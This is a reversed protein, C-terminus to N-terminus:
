YCKIRYMVGLELRATDFPKLGSQASYGVKHLTGAVFIRFDQSPDPYYELSCVGMLSRRYNRFAGCDATDFSGKAVLNWGPLFQWFIKGILSTYLANGIRTGSPLAFDASAIGLRDIGDKEFMYDLYCQFRSSNFKFGGNFLAAYIDASQSMGGVAWRGLLKGDFFSSNWNLLINLPHRAGSVSRTDTLSSGTIITPSSYTNAFSHILPNTVEFVFEQEPVPRWCFAVGGFFIDMHNLLDSYQYVYMPNEDYDFGGWHQCIKGGEVSFKDSLAFGIMFLDTAASFNDLSAAASTGNIKHRFRYYIRDTLNGKIELRMERARFASNWGSFGMEDGNSSAYSGAFNMYVNFAESKKELELLRQALSEFQIQEVGMGTNGGQAFASLPLLLALFISLKKM